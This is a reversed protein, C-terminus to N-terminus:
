RYLLTSLLFLHFVHKYLNLGVYIFVRCFSLKTHLVRKYLHICQELLNKKVFNNVM